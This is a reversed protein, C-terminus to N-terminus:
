VNTSANGCDITVTGGYNTDARGGDIIRIKRDIVKETAISTPIVEWTGNTGSNILISVRDDVTAGGFNPYTGVDSALYFTLGDPNGPNTTLSAVGAFTAYEGLNSIITNLTDQLIQGTIENNGNTKIVQEVAAKLDSWNAM